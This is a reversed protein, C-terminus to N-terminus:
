GGGWYIWARLAIIFGVFIAWNWKDMPEGAWPPIYDKFKAM